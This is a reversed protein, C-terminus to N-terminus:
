NNYLFEFSMRFEACTVLRGFPKTLVPPTLDSAQLVTIPRIAWSIADLLNHSPLFVNYTSFRPYTELVHDFWAILADRDLRYDRPTRRTSDRKDPRSLDDADDNAAGDIHASDQMVDSTRGLECMVRILQQGYFSATAKKRIWTESAKNDKRSLTRVMPPVGDPFLQSRLSVSEDDELVYLTCAYDIISGIYEMQNMYLRRPNRSSQLHCRDRISQTTPIMSIVRMEDSWFGVGYFSSDSTTTLFHSRPIVHGINIRWLNDFNALHAHLLTLEHRLVLSLKTTAKTRYLYQAYIENCYHLKLKKVM